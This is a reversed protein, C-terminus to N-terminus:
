IQWNRVDRLADYLTCYSNYRSQGIEGRKLAKKVSCNPETIHSCGSFRCGDAYSKIEPFLDSLKSAMIKDMEFSGFGPTDFVFGGFSLPFLETHRTTHKGRQIKDSVAGTKLSFNEGMANLLSSKGVGSSGALATVKDKLFLKLSDVGEGTKASCVFVPFGALTYEKALEATKERNLEAKNICVACDVGQMVATVTLKDVLELAPEPASVAFTVLLMDINSVPPRFFRNKRPALKTVYGEKKEHDTIEIEVKDGVMPIQGEKRFKGRARCSYVAEGDCKVYYFGGIGKMIIGTMQVCAM